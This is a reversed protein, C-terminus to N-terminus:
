QCLGGVLDTTARRGFDNCCTDINVSAGCQACGVQGLTGDQSVQHGILHDQDVIKLAYITNSRDSRDLRSPRQTHGIDDFLWLADCLAQLNAHPRDRDIHIFDIRHRLHDYRAVPHVQHQDHGIAAGAAITLSHNQYLL